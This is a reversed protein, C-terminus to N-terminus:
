QKVGKKAAEALLKNYTKVTEETLGSHTYEATHVVGNVSKKIKM